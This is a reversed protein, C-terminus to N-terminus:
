LVKLADLVQKGLKNVFRAFSEPLVLLTRQCVKMALKCLKFLKCLKNAFSVCSAQLTQEVLKYIYCLSSAFSANKTQLAHLAVPM